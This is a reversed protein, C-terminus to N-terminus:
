KPSLGNLVELCNEKNRLLSNAYASWPYARTKKQLKLISQVDETSPMDTGDPFKPSTLSSASLAACVAGNSWNNEYIHSSALNMTISGVPLYLRSAISNTLQSFTFYDYPLGLWVDSSRMNITCHLKGERVLWQLSITCPVDKSDPPSPTWITSVAQRSSPKNLSELIYPWQPKLRPGYAGSLILNDDSFSRMVSNYTAITEVDNLGGLIWLWEAVMFRYNLNRKKNILINNLGDDVEITVNLLERTKLGRPSSDKGLTLLSDLLTSWVEGISDGKILYAM